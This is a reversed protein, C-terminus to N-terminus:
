IKPPHRLTEACWLGVLAVVVASLALTLAASFLAFGFGYFIPGIGQGVFFSASHLATSAGRAAPALETVFIQISGHLMYFACGILTFLMFEVQWPMRLGILVLAVGVLSGGAIMLRRVGFRGLAWPLLFAYIVGGLGFGGIVIGAISARTEGEGYLLAAMHPFLGFVFIGELFVASFCIKALPNRFILLYNSGLLGLDFRAPADTTVSRLGFVIALLAAAGVGAAGFFVGRWGILDGVVGGISAGLLGGALTIALLRSIAIQRGSLPVLDGAIALAIPFVGGAAMGSIARAAFLMPFNDVVAGALASAVLVVLCATMLRIKGLMDAMGGLLPQVLAYPIAFATSLLAATAPDVALDIAIKQIVPDIARQFLATAFSVGAVVNLVRSM